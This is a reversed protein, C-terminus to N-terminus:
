INKNKSNNMVMSYIYGDGFLWINYSEYCIVYIMFIDRSNALYAKESSFYSQPCDVINM